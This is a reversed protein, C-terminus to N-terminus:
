SSLAQNLFIEGSIDIRAENNPMAEFVRNWSSSKEEDLINKPDTIKTWWKNNLIHKTTQNPKEKNLFYVKETTMSTGAHKAESSQPGHRLKTKINELETKDSNSHTTQLKTQLKMMESLLVSEKDRKRKAKNKSFESFKITFTRIQIQIMEWFLAKDKVQQHKPSQKDKVQKDSEELRCVDFLVIRFWIALVWISIRSVEGPRLITHKKFLSCKRM